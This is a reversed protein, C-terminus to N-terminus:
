TVTERVTLRGNPLRVTDEVVDVLNGSYVTESAITDERLEKEV